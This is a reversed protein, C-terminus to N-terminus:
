LGLPLLKVELGKSLSKITLSFTSTYYNLNHVEIESQTTRYIFLISSIVMSLLLELHFTNTQTQVNTIDLTLFFFVSLHGTFWFIVVCFMMVCQM